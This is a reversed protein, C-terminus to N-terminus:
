TGNGEEGSHLSRPLRHTAVAGEGGPVLAKGTDSTMSPGGGQWSSPPAPTAEDRGKEDKREWDGRTEEEFGLRWRQIKEKGDERRQDDLDQAIGPADEV